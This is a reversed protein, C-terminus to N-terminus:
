TRKSTEDIEDAKVTTTAGSTALDAMGLNKWDDREM